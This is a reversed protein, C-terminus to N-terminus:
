SGFHQYDWKQKGGSPKSLEGPAQLFFKWSTEDFDMTITGQIHDFFVINLLLFAVVTLM